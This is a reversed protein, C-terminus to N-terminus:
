YAENLQQIVSRIVEDAIQNPVQCTAAGKHGGGGYQECLAGADVTCSKNFISRGIAIVTFEGGRGNFVRVQVNAQPYQTFILFRNGAPVKQIKRLDTLVVNGEVTSTSRMVEAFEKQQALLDQCRKKVEPIELIENISKDILWDALRLFYDKFAGLGSRPDLTYFLLIYDTPTLVDQITLDASDIRDTAELLATYKYLKFSNYYDYVVRAASPAIRFGGKFSNSSDKESSAHHDFWMGCSPHYPLNAVIDNKTVFVKGDQMDKPHAFEISDISEMIKLFVAICLGDADGRTVLRM